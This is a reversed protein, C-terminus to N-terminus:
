GGNAEGSEVAAEATETEAAETPATEVAPTEAAPTEAAPTEAPATSAPQTVGYGLIEPDGVPYQKARCSDSSNGEITYVMGNEVKEVIGVHDAVGDQGKRTWDFFIIMDGAPEATGDLWRGQQQFWTVGDSCLSFKPVFGRDLYGSQDACWSVFCACWEVRSEFGYWSWYPEGGQQGIQTRAVAALGRVAGQMLQTFEAPDIETGFAQNVAAVLQDDTQGQAFCGALKSVFGPDAAMEYLMLSYLMQAKQIQQWGFGNASMTSEIDQMTGELNQLRSLREESYNAEIAQRLAETDLELQGSFISLIAVLPMVLIILIGLVIGGIIKWTKPQFLFVTALKKLAAGAVASM